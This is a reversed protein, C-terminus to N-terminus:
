ISEIDGLYSDGRADDLLGEEVELVRETLRQALLDRAQRLVDLAKGRESM